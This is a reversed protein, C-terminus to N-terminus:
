LQSASIAASVWSRRATTPQKFSGIDSLQVAVKSAVISDSCPYVPRLNLWANHRIHRSQTPNMHRLQLYVQSATSQLLIQLSIFVPVEQTTRKRLHMWILMNRGDYALM